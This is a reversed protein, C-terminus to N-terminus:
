RAADFGGDHAKNPRRKGCTLGHPPEKLEESRKQRPRM